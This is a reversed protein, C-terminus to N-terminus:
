AFVPHSRLGMDEPNKRAADKVVSFADYRSVIPMDNPMVQKRLVQEAKQRAAHMMPAAAVAAHRQQSARVDAQRKEYQQLLWGANQTLPGGPSVRDVDIQGKTLQKLATRTQM